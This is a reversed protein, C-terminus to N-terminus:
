RSPHNDHPSALSHFQLRFVDYSRAHGLPFHDTRRMTVDVREGGNVPARLQGVRISKEHEITDQRGLKRMGEDVATM